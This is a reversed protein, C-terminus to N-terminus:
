VAAGPAPFEMAMAFELAFDPHNSLEVHRTMRALEGARARMGTSLLAWKAGSLSTNGVYRIREEPIESPLLGIQQANHRRVYNGFGGAILVEDLDKPTLGAKKLLIRTGARIAGAALQLERLDKQKLTVRPEAPVATDGASLVFEAKGDGDASLRRRLGEPIQEPLEEPPLLRGKPTAIGSRLLEAALDILGSGCLGTPRANGIVTCRPATDFVVREIAGSTARMGCSIRAGEFAPGAATSAAWLRGEWALVIEGNTGIDVMLTPKVCQDLQAALIGSVTDGGVFGGIVPFLYVLGRPHIHVGFEAAPRAIAQNFAPAFPIQGLPGPDIGAVLHLMTTNGSFAIEYLDHPRAGAQECLRAVMEDAAALMSTHLEALQAPGRAAHAIRSLVDDGYSVQPNMRSEIGLERGTFLDVLTAVLTTTGVDFAVGLGQRTTDGPEFDVLRNGSLVATGAFDAERLKGPLARLMALGSEVGTYGAAALAAELRPLDPTGDQMSPAPMELYHKRVNPQISGVSDTQSDTQIQHQSVFLSTEPVSIVSPEVVASQCALRWGARLEEETFAQREAEGPPAAGKTVQVRCKGCVGGGGCPTDITLGAHAAAELILVGPTTDVQRGHPEFITKFSEQEM